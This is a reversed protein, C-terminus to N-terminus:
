VLVFVGVSSNGFRSGLEYVVTAVVAVKVSKKREGELEINQKNPAYVSKREPTQISPQTFRYPVTKLM